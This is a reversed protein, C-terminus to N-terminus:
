ASPRGARGLRLRRRPEHRRHGRRHDRRARAGDRRLPVGLRATGGDARRRRRRRDRHRRVPRHRLPRHRHRLAAGRGARRRDGRHLARDEDAAPDVPRRHLRRAVMPAAITFGAWRTNAVDVLWGDVPIPRSDNIALTLGRAWILTALTAMIASLGLKAVLVGQLVGIAAGVAVAALVALVCRRRVGARPRHVMGLLALLSGVSLDINRSIISFTLPIAVLALAASQSIM